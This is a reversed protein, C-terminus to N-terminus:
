ISSYSDMRATHDLCALFVVRLLIHKNVSFFGNFFFNFKILREKPRLLPVAFVFLTHKNSYKRSSRKLISVKGKDDVVVAVM